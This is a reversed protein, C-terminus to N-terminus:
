WAQVISAIALKEQAEQGEGVAELSIAQQNFTDVLLESINVDRTANAGSIQIPIARDVEIASYHLNLNRLEEAARRHLSLSQMLDDNANAAWELYEARLLPLNNAGAIDAVRTYFATDDTPSAEYLQLLEVYFNSFEEESTSVELLLEQLLLTDELLAALEDEDGIPNGDGGTGGGNVIIAGTVSSPCPVIRGELDRCTLVPPRTNPQRM